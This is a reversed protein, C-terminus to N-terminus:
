LKRLVADCYPATNFGIVPLIPTSIVELIAKTVTKLAINRFMVFIVLYKLIASYIYINLIALYM